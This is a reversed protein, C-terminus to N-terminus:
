ELMSLTSLLRAPGPPGDEQQGMWLAVRGDVRGGRWEWSDMGGTANRSGCLPSILVRPRIFVSVPGAGLYHVALVGDVRWGDIKM